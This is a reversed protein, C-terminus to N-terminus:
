KALRRHTHEHLSAYPGKQMLLDPIGVHMRLEDSVHHLGHLNLADDVLVYTVSPKFRNARLKSDWVPVPSPTPWVEKKHSCCNITLYM